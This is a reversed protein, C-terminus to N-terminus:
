ALLSRMEIATTLGDMGPMSYDLLIVKYMSLQQNNACQEIRERIKALAEYGSLAMNSLISSGEGEGEGEGKLIGQLVQVNMEDDDIVLVQALENDQPPQWM